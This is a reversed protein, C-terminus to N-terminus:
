FRHLLTRAALYFGAAVLLVGRFGLALALLPAAAAGIVSLFGNVGWCWPVWDPRREAVRRLGLPFPVGMFFALPALLAVAAAVRLVLPWGAAHDWLWIQVLYTVLGLLAIAVFPVTAGLRSRTRDAWASGLGAFVLVTGLVTATAVIPHALLLVLRQIASIELLMFGFGLAAFYGFMAPRGGSGADAGSGAAPGAKRRRRGPLFALPLLILVAALPIAQVLVLVQTVLGWEFWALALRGGRRWLGPIEDLPLFHFFFPADDSVPDIRFPYARQFREPDPGLLREAGIRYWDPDLRHYRNAASEPAGPAWPVDFWREGAWTLLADVEGSSLPSRSVLLTVTGWGRVMAMHDAARGEGVEVMTRATALLRLADRPPDLAWRTIALVGDEDLVRWLDSFAERTFLWGSGAATMGAAGAALSGTETILIRDFRGDTARLFSREDRHVRRVDPGLASPALLDDLRADPDVAVIEGAGGMRALWIGEGGAVGLVLARGDASPRLVNVAASPTLGLLSTDAASIRPGLPQGDLYLVPSPPVPEELTLSLGPFYRLSPASIMELRGQPGDSRAVIRSGPLRLAQSGAKYESMPIAAPPALVAWAVLALAAIWGRRAALAAGAVAVLAVAAPARGAPVAAILALGGVAGAGSGLLNAAYVRGIRDPEIEFALATVTGALLFPVGLVLTVLSLWLFQRPLALLEFADFPITASLRWAPDFSVATALAVIAFVARERGEVLPRAVALLSGSAGIGLLALGIVLAAFHTWHAISLLHVLVVEYALSAASVAALPVFM